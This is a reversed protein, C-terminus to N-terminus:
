KLNAFNIFMGILSLFNYIKIINLMDISKCKDCMKFCLAVEKVNKILNIYTPKGKMVLRREVALHDPIVIIHGGGGFFFFYFEM